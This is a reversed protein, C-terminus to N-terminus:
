RILEQVLRDALKRMLDQLPQGQVGTKVADAYETALERVLSFDVGSTRHNRVAAELAERAGQDFAHSPINLVYEKGTAHDKATLHLMVFAKQPSTVGTTPDQEPGCTLSYHLGTLYPIVGGAGGAGIIRQSSVERCESNYNGIQCSAAYTKGEVTLKGAYSNGAGAPTISITTNKRVKNEAVFDGVASISAQFNKIDVHAQFHIPSRDYPLGVEPADIKGWKVKKKGKELAVLGTSGVDAMFSQAQLPGHKSDLMLVGSIEFGNKADVPKCSYAILDGPEFLSGQGSGVIAHSAPVMLFTLLLIPFRM